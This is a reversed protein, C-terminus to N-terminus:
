SRRRRAVGGVCLLVRVEGQTHKNRDYLRNEEEKAPQGNSPAGYVIVVESTIFSKEL